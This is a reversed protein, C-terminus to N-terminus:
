IHLFFENDLYIYYEGFFCFMCVCVCVCVCLFSLSNFCFRVVFRVTGILVEVGASLAHPPSEQHPGSLRYWTGNTSAKTATGDCIFFKGTPADFEVRAHEASIATDVNMTREEGSETIVKMLLPITNSTKRGLAAGEKEIVFSQGAL